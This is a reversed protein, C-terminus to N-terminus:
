NIIQILKNNNFKLVVKKKEINGGNIQNTYVYTWTNTNFTDNLLPKGLLSSIAEKNQGVHLQAIADQDIVNGQQVNVHYCGALAIMAVFILLIKRM